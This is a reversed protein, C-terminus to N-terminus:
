PCGIYESGANESPADPSCYWIELAGLGVDADITLTGAGTGEIVTLLDADVGDNQRYRDPGGRLEIEGARVAADLEVTLTDPVWLRLEGITLGLDIAREAGDLDLDSLDVVFEGIGWTYTDELSEVTSVEVREEGIGDHWDLDVAAIAWAIPLVFVGLFILGRARGLFASVILGLGIVALTLGAYIAPDLDWWDSQEGVMSVGAFVLLVAITLPGLFPAPKPPKPPRPARQHAQRRARYGHRWEQRQARFSDRAEALESQVEDRAARLETRIEDGTTMPRGTEPDAAPEAEADVPPEAEAGVPPTSAARRERPREDDGPWILFAVGAAILLLPLALGDGFGFGNFWVLPTSLILVAGIALVVFLLTRNGEPSGRLARMASTEGSGEKAIVLWALLYLLIGSGGFLTLLVFGIRVIVPDVGFHHGLGGAVGALVRDSRSRRLGEYFPGPDVPEGYPPPPPPPTETTEDTPPIDSM